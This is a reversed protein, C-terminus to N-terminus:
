PKNPPLPTPTPTIFQNFDTNSPISLGPSFSLYQYYNFLTNLEAISVVFGKSTNITKFFPKQEEPKKLLLQQYFHQLDVKKFLHFQEKTGILYFLTNDQRLIGSQVYHPNAPNSKEAIEFYYRKTNKSVEDNKIEIGKDNEGQLQQQQTLFPTIKFQYTTEFFHYIYSEFAKGKALMNPYYGSQQRELEKQTKNM